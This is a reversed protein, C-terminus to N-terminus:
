GYRIFQTLNDNFIAPFGKIKFKSIALKAKFELSEKDKICNSISIYTYLPNDKYKQCAKCCSLGVVVM